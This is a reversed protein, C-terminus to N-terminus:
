EFPRLEIKAQKRLEAFQMKVKENLIEDRLWPEAEELSMGPMTKTGELRIVHWGVATEIPARSYQGPEMGAVADAIPYMLRNGTLWGMSGGEGASQDSSRERAIQGFDGGANLAAIVELAAAEDALLIHSIKYAPEEPLQQYRDRIEDDLIETQEAMERVLRQALLTKYSLEAGAMVDPRKDMGEALARQTLLEMLVLDDIIEQRVAVAADDDGRADQGWETLRQDLRIDLMARSLAQGNVIAIAQDPATAQPGAQPGPNAQVRGEPFLLVGCGIGLFFLFAGGLINRTM